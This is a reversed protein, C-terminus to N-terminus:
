HALTGPNKQLRKSVLGEASQGRSVARKGEGVVCEFAWRRTEGSESM